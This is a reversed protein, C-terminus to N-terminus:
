FVERVVERVILVTAPGLIVGGLGYVCIGAYVILVMAFPYIGLSDGLLKPELLERATNAALFLLFLASAKGFNGQLLTFLSWPILITGVGIFPLADLLGIALGLLLAYPNKMVALGVVCLVSVVTIIIIQAKIYEGGLKWLRDMIRHSRQYLEYNELNAKIKDYDKMLLIVAAYIVFVLGVAAIIGMIYRISSHLMIPMQEELRAEMHDLNVYVFDKIEENRIGLFNELGYCCDDVVGMFQGYYRDFNEAINQIQVVLQSYLFYLGLGALGLLLTMLVAIIWEKPCKLKKHIRVTVPNLWHVFFYAIFFPLVYPLLYRMGLFVAATIGLIWCLKKYESM